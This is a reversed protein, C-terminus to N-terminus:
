PTSRWFKMRYIDDGDEIKISEWHTQVGYPSHTFFEVAFKKNGQVIELTDDFLNKQDTQFIFKTQTQIWSEIESLFKATIFRRKKHKEKPWPDPFNIFVEEILAGQDMCPQLISRFNRGADGDFVHVNDNKAFKECLKLYVPKRIEFILFNKDPFKEILAASFEGKYAGVDIIIPKGNGFGTFVHEHTISLPNVHPRIRRQPM